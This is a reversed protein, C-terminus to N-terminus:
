DLAGMQISVPIAMGLVMGTSAKNGGDKNDKM